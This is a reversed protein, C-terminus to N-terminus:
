AREAIELVRQFRATLTSGYNISRLLKMCQLREQATRSLLYQKAQRDAEEFSSVVSFATRDIRPFQYGGVILYLM